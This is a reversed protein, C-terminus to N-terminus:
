KLFKEEMTLYKGELFADKRNATFLFLFFSRQVRLQCIREAGLCFVKKMDVNKKVNRSQCANFLMVLNVVGWVVTRTYHDSSFQCIARCGCLSLPCCYVKLPPEEEKWFRLSLTLCRQQSRKGNEKRASLEMTWKAFTTSCRYLMSDSKTSASSVLRLRLGKSPLM